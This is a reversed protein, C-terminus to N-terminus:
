FETGEEEDANSRVLEFQGKGAGNMGVKAVATVAKQIAAAPGIAARPGNVGRSLDDLNENPGSSKLTPSEQATAADKVLQTLDEHSAGRELSRPLVCGFYVAVLLVLARAIFPIWLSATSPCLASQSSEGIVLSVTWLCGGLVPGIGRAIAALSQGLGNVAGLESPPASNNVIVMIATFSVVQLIRIACFSGTMLMSIVIPHAPLLASIPLFFGSVVSLSVAGVFSKRVGYKKTVCPAIFSGVFVSGGAVGLSLGIAKSNYGLCGQCLLPFIEDVLIQTLALFSYALCALVPNRRRWIPTETEPPATPAAITPVGVNSAPGDTSRHISPGCDEEEEEEDVGRLDEEAVVPIAGEVVDSGNGHMSGPSGMGDGRAGNGEGNPDGHHLANLTVGATNPMEIDDDDDDHEETKVVQSEARQRRMATEEGQRTEVQMRLFIMIATLGQFLSIVAMPMLYPFAEWRIPPQSLTGGILPAITLGIGFSLPLLSFARARNSDDTNASLYSKMVGINGNVLGHLFRSVFCIWVNNSMGFLFAFVASGSTGILLAKLYGIQDAWRGWHFSSLFQAFCFTAALAGSWIGVTDSSIGFDRLMFIVFPFLVGVGLAESVQVVGVIALPWFPLPTEAGGKGGM